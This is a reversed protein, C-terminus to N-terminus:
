SRRLNGIQRRHSNNTLQGKRRWLSGCMLCSVGFSSLTKGALKAM